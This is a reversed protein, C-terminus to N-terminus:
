SYIIHDRLTYTPDIKLYGANSKYVNFDDLLIDTFLVDNIAKAKAETVKVNVVGDVKQIADILKILEMDSNFTTLSFSSIYSNIADEIPYVTDDTVLQGLNNIKSMDLKVKMSLRMQDPELSLVKLLPGVVKIKQFYELVSSVQQTTLNILGGTGNDKAVKIVINGSEVICSSVKVIKTNADEIAYELGGNTRNYALTYGEQYELAKEAYWQTTGVPLKKAQALLESSFVDMIQEFSAIVVAVCYMISSWIATSKTNTLDNLSQYKAKEALMENYITTVTRAM